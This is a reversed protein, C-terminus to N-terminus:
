GAPNARRAALEDLLRHELAHHRRVMDLGDPEPVWHWAEWESSVYGDYGAEVLVELVARYDITPENGDADFEYFKGHVHRIWPAIERWDAPDQHGFLVVGQAFLVSEVDAGREVLGRILQDASGHQDYTAQGLELVAEPVGRDRYAQFLGPALRRTSAGFDPIFGVAESQLREYLERLAVVWPSHVTAPAHVEMALVVGLREAVPVLREVVAPGALNQLRVLPFGLDAAAGIQAQLYEVTEDETLKRDRRLGVDVNVALCSPELQHHQLADRVHRVTERSVHPFGRVSQFGVIELGPGLGNEAVTRVLDDFSLTRSHFEPTFSYLTTGLRPLPAGSPVPPTLTSHSTTTM